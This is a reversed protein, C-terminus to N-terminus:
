LWEWDSTPWVVVFARGVINGDKIPGLARSDLSNNRHDGMVFVTGAPVKVKDQDPGCAKENNTTQRILQQDLYPEVLERGNIYLTCNHYEVTEGPLGIVRKILDRESTGEISKLVVVDGRRPDHLHYSLKNVLVRDGDHLTYEMSEGSVAFQQLVFQRVLLAAAIAVALVLVWETLASFRRKRSKGAAAEPGAGEADEDVLAADPTEDPSFTASM